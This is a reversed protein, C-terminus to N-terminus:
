TAASLKALVRATAEDNKAQIDKLAAAIAAKDTSSSVSAAAAALTSVSQIIPGLSNILGIVQAANM